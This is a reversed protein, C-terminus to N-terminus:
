FVFPAIKGEDNLSVKPCCGCMNDWEHYDEEGYPLIQITLDTETTIWM